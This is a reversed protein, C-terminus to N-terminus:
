NQEERSPTGQFEISFVAPGRTYCYPHDSGVIPGRLIRQVIGIFDSKILKDLRAGLLKFHRKTWTKLLYETLPTFNWNAV